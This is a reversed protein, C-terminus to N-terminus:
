SDADNAERRSSVSTWPAAGTSQVGDISMGGHSAAEMRRTRMLVEELLRRNTATLEALMAALAVVFALGLATGGVVLSQVYGNYGPDLLYFYLFRVFAGVGLAGFIISVGAFLQVPQYMAYARLIVPGARRLYGGMSGFLRSERSKPNTRIKVNASVLGMRGAQIVTELTYTFRNHVFLRSAAARSFARFGSPSDAVDSGSLRRLVRSGLRQLWRKTSSFHEITDTQRDGIVLDAEGRLIPQVLRAIEDGPYQNDADTNVVITAGLSLAADLGARFAAALGKNRPFRVIHHVGLERAVESTGDVSGDDVILVEIEDVGAIERPLEDLTPGLQERENLCPIQIILKVKAASPEVSRTEDSPRTELFTIFGKRALPIAPLTM